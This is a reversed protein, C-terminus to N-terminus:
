TKAVFPNGTANRIAAAPIRAAVALFDSHHNAYGTLLSSAPPPAEYTGDPIRHRAIVAKEEHLM